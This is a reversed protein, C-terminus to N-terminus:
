IGDSTSIPYTPTAVHCSSQSKYSVSQHCRGSVLGLSCCFACSGPPDLGKHAAELSSRLSSHISIPTLSLGFLSLRANGDKM